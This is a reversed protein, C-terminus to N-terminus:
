KRISASLDLIQNVMDAPTTTKSVLGGQFIQNLGTLFKQSEEYEKLPKAKSMSDAIGNWIPTEELAKDFYEQIVSM